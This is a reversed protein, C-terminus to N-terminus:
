RVGAVRPRRWDRLLGGAIAAVVRRDRDRWISPVGVEDVVRERRREAVVGRAQSRQDPDDLMRVDATAHEAPERIEVPARRAVRPAGALVVQPQFKEAVIDVGDRRVGVARRDPVVGAVRGGARGNVGPPLRGLIGDGIPRGHRRLGSRLLITWGCEAVAVDKTARKRIRSWLLIGFIQQSPGAFAPGEALRGNKAQCCSPDSRNRDPSCALDAYMRLLM